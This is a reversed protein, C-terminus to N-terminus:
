QVLELCSHLAMINALIEIPINFNFLTQIDPHREFNLEILQRHQSQALERIIWTKGV